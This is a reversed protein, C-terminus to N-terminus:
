TVGRATECAAVLVGALEPIRQRPCRTSPCAIALAAIAKGATDRVCAGVATVGQASEEFNTAYGRKRIEALQRQLSRRAQM